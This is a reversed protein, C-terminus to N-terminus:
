VIKNLIDAVDEKGLFNDSSRDYVIPIGDVKCAALFATNWIATRVQESDRVDAYSFAANFVAQADETWNRWVSLPVEHINANM